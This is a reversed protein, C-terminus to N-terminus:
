PLQFLKRALSIYSYLEDRDEANLRRLGACNIKEFFSVSNPDASFKMLLMEVRRMEAATAQENMMVVFGPIEAFVTFIQLKERLAQPISQYEGNSLMAATAYGHVITDGVSDQNPAHLVDFDRGPLLGRGSLWDLGKQAVLSKPNPLVLTNGRLDDIQQMSRASNVSKATIILGQIKPSFILLPRYGAETEALGALHPATIILDYAGENTREYFKKFDPATGVYVPKQLEKELYERLLRYQELLLRTSLHPVVGIELIEIAGAVPSVM